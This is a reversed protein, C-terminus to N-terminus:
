IRDKSPHVNMAEKPIQLLILLLLMTQLSVNGLKRKSQKVLLAIDSAVCVYRSDYLVNDM